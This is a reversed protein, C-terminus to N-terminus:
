TWMASLVIAPEQTYTVKSFSNQIQSQVAKEIVFLKLCLTVFFDVSKFLLYNAVNAKKISSHSTDQSTENEHM